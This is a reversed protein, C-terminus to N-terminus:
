IRQRNPACCAKQEKLPHIAIIVGATVVHYGTNDNCNMRELLLLCTACRISLSDSMTAPERRAHHTWALVSQPVLPPFGMSRELQLSTHPVGGFPGKKTAQFVYWPGSHM